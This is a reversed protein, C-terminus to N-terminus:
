NFDKLGLVVGLLHYLMWLFFLGQLISGVARAILDFEELKM